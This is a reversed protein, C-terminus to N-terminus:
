EVFDSGQTNSLQEQPMLNKLLQEDTFLDQLADITLNDTIGLIETETSFVDNLVDDNPDYNKIVQMTEDELMILPGGPNLVDKDINALQETSLLNSKSSWYALEDDDDNLKADETCYRAWLDHAASLAMYDEANKGQLFADVAMVYDKAVKIQREVLLYAVTFDQSNREYENDTVPTPSALRAFSNIAATGADCANDSITKVKNLTELSENLESINESAATSITVLQSFQEMKNTLYALSLLTSKMAATDHQIREQFASIEPNVSTRHYKSVKAIDGSVLAGNSIPYGILCGVVYGVVLATVVAILSKAKIKM